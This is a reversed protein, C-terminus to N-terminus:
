MVKLMRDDVFEGVVDKDLQMKITSLAKIFAAAMKDYDILNTPTAGGGRSLPMVHTRNGQQMLLEPGAEAVMAMGDLLTGGKALYPIKGLSVPGLDFGFHKGGIGPVWKPVDFSLKNVGRIVFNVGAEIGGIMGNILGIVANIPIKAIGIIGNFINGFISVVADWAGKWNGTFVNRVFDIIGKFVGIVSNVIQGVNSLWAGLVNLITGIVNGITDAVLHFVNVISPGFTDIFWMVIPQISTWLESMIVTIGGVFEVWKDWLPKIGNDWVNKLTQVIIDFIPKLITEWLASFVEKIGNIAETVSKRFNENTDWLQKIALVVAGIIAIIAAIPIMLGSLAGGVIGIGGSISGFLPLLNAIAGAITGFIVLLPGIAAVLALVSVIMTKISPDLSKFWETISKLIESLKEMIPGLAKQIVDGLESGALTLNHMAVKAKDAPDEMDKYSQSVRGNGAEIAKMMDDVDFKGQKITDFMDNNAKQGFIQMTDSASLTGDQVGKIVKAFEKKANKGEATFKGIAKKMGSFAIETSVGAKEWQSFLAISEKTDYGLARMPAGYKALNTALESISIGSAQSATTLSDLVSSYESSKIGADGMARSVVKVSESVDTKNVKSFKIFQKTADNLENGTFGLRTNIDAIANSVTMSDEPMSGYVEDFNNHLQALAEGTAGTGATINDYAEDVKNWSAFAAAGIGLIPATVGKTMKEGAKKASDASKGLKKSFEELDATGKKLKKSTDDLGKKYNNMSSTATALAAKKKSIAQEDRNEASELEKLEVTLVNVKKASDQYQKALYENTAKLKESAKTNEDWTSKTLKFQARNEQLSSNVTSLSKKFDVVGNADFILGVRKLDNSM